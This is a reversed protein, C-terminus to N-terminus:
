RRNEEELDNAIENSVEETKAEKERSNNWGKENNGVELFVEKKKDRHGEYQKQRETEQVQKCENVIMDRETQPINVYKERARDDLSMVDLDVSQQPRAAYTRKDQEPEKKLNDEELLDQERYYEKMKETFELAEADMAATERVNAEMAENRRREREAKNVNDFSYSHSKLYKGDKDYVSVNVDYSSPIESNGNYHNTKQFYIDNGKAMEQDILREMDKYNEIEYHGTREGKNMKDKVEESLDGLKTGRQGKKYTNLDGWMKTLNIREGTGGSSTKVGHGAHYGAGGVKKQAYFNREANETKLWGEESVTRKQSDTRFKFGDQFCEKNAEPNMGKDVSGVSDPKYYRYPGRNKDETMKDAM